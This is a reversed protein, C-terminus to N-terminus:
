ARAQFEILTNKSSRHLSGSHVFLVKAEQGWTVSIGQHESGLLAVTVVRTGKNGQDVDTYKFYITVNWQKYQQKHKALKLQGTLM